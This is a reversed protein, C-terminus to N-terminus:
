RSAKKSVECHVVEGNPAHRVLIRVERIIDPVSAAYPVVYTHSICVAFWERRLHEFAQNKHVQEAAATLNANDYMM